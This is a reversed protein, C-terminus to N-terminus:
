DSQERDFVAPRSRPPPHVRHITAHARVCVHPQLRRVEFMWAIAPIAHEGVWKKGQGM